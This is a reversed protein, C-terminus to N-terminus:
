VWRRGGAGSTSYSGQATGLASTDDTYLYTQGGQGGTRALALATPESSPAASFMWPLSSQTMTNHRHRPTFLTIPLSPRRRPSSSTKAQTPCCRDVSKSGNTTEATFLRFAYIRPCGHCTVPYAAIRRCGNREGWYPACQHLAAASTHQHLPCFLRCCQENSSIVQSPESESACSVLLLM